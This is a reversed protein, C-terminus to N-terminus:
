DFVHGPRGNVVHRVAFKEPEPRFYTNTLESM